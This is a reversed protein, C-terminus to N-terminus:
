KIKGRRNKKSLARNISDKSFSARTKENELKKFLKKLITGGIREHQKRQADREAIQQKLLTQQERFFKSFEVLCILTGEGEPHPQKGADQYDDYDYYHSM